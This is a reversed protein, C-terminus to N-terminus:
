PDEEEDAQRRSGTRFNLAKMAKDYEAQVDPDGLLDQNFGALEGRLQELYEQDNKRKAEVIDANISQLNNLAETKANAPTKVNKKATQTQNDRLKALEKDSQELKEFSQRLEEMAEKVQAPPDGYMTNGLMQVGSRVVFGPSAFFQAIYKKVGPDDDGLKCAFQSFEAMKKGTALDMDKKLDQTKRAATAKMRELRKDLDDSITGPGGLRKLDRQFEERTEKNKSIQSNVADDTTKIQDLSYKTCLNKWDLLILYATSFVTTVGFATGVGAAVNGKVKLTKLLAEVASAMLSYGSLAMLPTQVKEWNSTDSWFNIIGKNTMGGAGRRYISQFFDDIFKKLGTYSLNKEKSIAELSRAAADLAETTDKASRSTSYKGSTNYYPIGKGSKGRTLVVLDEGALLPAESLNSSSKITALNSSNAKAKGLTEVLLKLEDESNVLFRMFPAGDQIIVEASNVVTKLAPVAQLSELVEDEAFRFAANGKVPSGSAKIGERYAEDSINKAVKTKAAIDAAKERADDTRKILNMSAVGDANVSFLVDPTGGGFNHYFEVSTGEQFSKVRASEIARTMEEAQRKGLRALNQLIDEIKPDANRAVAAFAEDVGSIDLRVITGPDEAELSGARAGKGKQGIRSAVGFDWAGDGQRVSTLLDLLRVASETLVPARFNEVERINIKFKNSKFLKSEKQVSSKNKAAKEQKSKANLAKILAELGAFDQASTQHPDSRNLNKIGMLKKGLRSLAPNPMRFVSIKSKRFEPVPNDPDYKLAPNVLQDILDTEDRTKRRVIKNFENYLQQISDNKIADEIIKIALKADPYKTYGFEYGGGGVPRPTQTIDQWRLAKYLKHAPTVEMIEPEYDELINRLEQVSKPKAVELFPRLDMLVSIIESEDIDDLKGNAWYSWIAVGLGVAIAAKSALLATLGGYTAAGAASVGPIFKAFKGGLAIATLAAEVGMVANDTFLIRLPGAVANNVILQVISTYKKISGSTRVLYKLEKDSLLSLALTVNIESIKKGDVTAQKFARLASRKKARDRWYKERKEEFARWKKATELEDPTYFAEPDPLPVKSGITRFNLDRRLREEEDQVARSPAKETNYYGPGDPGPDLVDLQESLLHDIEVKIKM